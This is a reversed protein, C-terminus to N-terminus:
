SLCLSKRTYPPTMPDIVRGLTVKVRRRIASEAIGLHLCCWELSLWRRAQRDPRELLWAIGDRRNRQWDEMAMRRSHALKPSLDSTPRPNPAPTIADYIAQYIISLLLQREPSVPLHPGSLTPDFEESTERRVYSAFSTRYAPREVTASGKMQPSVDAKM